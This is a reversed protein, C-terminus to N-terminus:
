GGATETYPYVSEVSAAIVVHDSFGLYTLSMYEAARAIEALRDPEAAPGRIGLHM